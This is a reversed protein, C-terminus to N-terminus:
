RTHPEHPPRIYTITHHALLRGDPMVSAATGYILRRGLKLIKAECLFNERRVGSLFNTKLESTVSGDKIGLRTMIAFWMALDAAAMFVPGSVVGGPREFEERFPVRIVCEGDGISHLEFGYHQVFMSRSLLQKLESETAALTM